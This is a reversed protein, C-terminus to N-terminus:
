VHPDIMEPSNQEKNDRVEVAFGRPASRMRALRMAYMIANITFFITAAPWALLFILKEGRTLGEHAAAWCGFAVIVVGGGAAIGSGVALFTWVFQKIRPYDRATGVSKGCEPCRNPTARLDYSCTPCCGPRHRRRTSRAIGRAALVAWLLPLVGLTVLIWGVDGWHTGDFPGLQPALLLWLFLALSAASALSLLRPLM